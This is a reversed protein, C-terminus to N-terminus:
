FLAPFSSCGCQFLYERRMCSSFLLPFSLSIVGCIYFMVLVLAEYHEPIFSFWFDLDYVVCLLFYLVLILDPFRSM